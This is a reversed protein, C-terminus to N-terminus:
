SEPTGFNYTLFVRNIVHLLFDVNATYYVVICLRVYCLRSLHCSQRSCPLAFHFSVFTGGAVAEADLCTRLSDDM